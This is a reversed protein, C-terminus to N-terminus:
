RPFSSIPNLIQRHHNLFPALGAVQPHLRCSRRKCTPGLHRHCVAHAV